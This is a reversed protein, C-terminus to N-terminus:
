LSIHQAAVYGSSFAFQINYGGTNGDVDLVEGILHLGPHKKSEMTKMSVESLAVGGASVMAEKFGGTGSINFRMQHIMEDINKIVSKNITSAKTTENVNAMDLIHKIFRKPLGTKEAIYNGIGKSVGDCNLKDPRNPAFDIELKDAPEAYRSLSLIAPGSLNRHTLLFDGQQRIPKQGQKTLTIQGEFSLGSLETFNYNEVSIPSLAPKFPVMEFGLGLLSSSIKGDSGTVPYSAGGTAIVLKECLLEKNLLYGNETPEITTVDYGSKLCFGRESAKELLLDKIDAAKLSKPFVKLDDRILVPVNNETFFDMAAQNNFKYLPTRIKKGNPGYQDLFDKIDGGHTFNCQGAGSMLLKLAPKNSKDLILGNNVKCNAACFLGAAGAGIIIVDYKM